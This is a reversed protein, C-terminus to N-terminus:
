VPRAYETSAALSARVCQPACLCQPPPHASPYWVVVVCEFSCGRVLSCVFSDRACRMGGLESLDLTVIKDLPNPATIGIYAPGKSRNVFTSCM